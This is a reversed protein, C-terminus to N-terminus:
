TNEKYTWASDIIKHGTKCHCHKCLVYHKAAEVKLPFKLTYDRQCNYCSYKVSYEIDINKKFWNM